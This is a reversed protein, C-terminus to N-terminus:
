RRWWPVTSDWERQLSISRSSKSHSEILAQVPTVAVLVALDALLVAVREDPRQPFRLPGIERPALGFRCFQGVHQM